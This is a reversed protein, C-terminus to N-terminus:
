LKSARASKRQIRTRQQVLGNFTDGSRLDYGQERLLEDRAEEVLHGWTADWGAVVAGKNMPDDRAWQM